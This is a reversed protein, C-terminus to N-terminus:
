WGREKDSSSPRTGSSLQVKDSSSSGVGSSSPCSGSSITVDGSSSQVEDSSSPGPRLWLTNRESSSAKRELSSSEGVSWGTLIGHAFCGGANTGENGEVKGLGHRREDKGVGEGVEATM